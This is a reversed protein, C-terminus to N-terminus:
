NLIAHTCSLQKIFAYAVFKGDHSLSIDFPAKENKYYLYPPQFELGKKARRIEMERFDLQHVDSLKRLLCKRGHLSPDINVCSGTEPVPEVGWIIQELDRLRDAGICHVYNEASLQVFVTSGGPLVVEGEMVTHGSQKLQVSWLRPLFPAGVSTKRVVKYATEKCAWLSWLARDQNEAEQVIEIEANTLIKRLYRSDWSKGANAPLKWDVVDNGIYPM